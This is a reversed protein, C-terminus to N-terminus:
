AGIHMLKKSAEELITNFSKSTEPTNKAKEFTMEVADLFSSFSEYMDEPMEKHLIWYIKRISKHRNRLHNEMNRHEDLVQIGKDTLEDSYLEILEEKQLHALLPYISGPSPRWDTYEQIRDVIESGSM